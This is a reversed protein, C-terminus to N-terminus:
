EQNFLHEHQMLDDLSWVVVALGGHATFNNLWNAQLQSPKNPWIKCEVALARGLSMVGLVGLIDAAGPQGFRIVRKNGKYESVNMGSNNRWAFVGKLRLYELCQKVLETERMPVMQPTVTEPKPKRTRTM